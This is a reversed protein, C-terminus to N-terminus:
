PSSLVITPPSEVAQSIATDGGESAVHVPSSAKTAAHHLLDPATSEAHTRLVHCFRDWSFACWIVHDSRGRNFVLIDHHPSAVAQWFKMTKADVAKLRAGRFSMTSDVGNLARLKDALTGGLLSAGRVDWAMPVKQITSYVWGWPAVVVDSHRNRSAVVVPVRGAVERAASQKLAAWITLDEVNKCEFDCPILRQALPSLL